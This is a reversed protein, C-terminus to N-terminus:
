DILDEINCTLTEALYLVVIVGLAGTEIPAVTKIRAILALYPQLLDKDGSSKNELPNEACLALFERATDEEPSQELLDKVIM